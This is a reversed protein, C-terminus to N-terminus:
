ATCEVALDSELTDNRRKLDVEKAQLQAVQKRLQANVDALESNRKEHTTVIQRLHLSSVLGQLFLIILNLVIGCELM